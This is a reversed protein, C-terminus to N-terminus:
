KGDNGVSKKDGIKQDNHRYNVSRQLSLGVEQKNKDIAKNIDVKENEDVPHESAWEKAKPSWNDDYKQHPTAGKTQLARSEMMALADRVSVPKRTEAVIVDGFRTTEAVSVPAEDVLMTDEKMASPLKKKLSDRADELSRVTYKCDYMKGSYAAKRMADTPEKGKAYMASLKKSADMAKMHNDYLTKATSAIENSVAVMKELWEMQVSHYDETLEYGEKMPPKKNVDDTAENDAKVASKKEERKSDEIAKQGDVIAPASKKDLKGTDKTESSERGQKIEKPSQVSQAPGSVKKMAEPGTTSHSAEAVDVTDAHGDGIETKASGAKAATDEGTAKKKYRELISPRHSETSEQHQVEVETKGGSKGGHVAKTVAKRRKHLYKDSSDTDGDNDIDKDKRDEFDGKVAKKDVPDMKKKEAVQNLAAAMAEIDSRKM